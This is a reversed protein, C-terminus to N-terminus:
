RWYGTALLFLGLLCLGVALLGCLTGAGALQDANM